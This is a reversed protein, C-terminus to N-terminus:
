ADIQKTFKKTTKKNNSSVWGDEEDEVQGKSRNDQLEEHM